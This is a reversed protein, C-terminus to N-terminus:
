RRNRVMHIYNTARGFMIFVTSGALVLFGPVKWVSCHFNFRRSREQHGAEERSLVEVSSVNKVQLKSDYLIGFLSNLFLFGAVIRLANRWHVATSLSQLVQSLAMNGLGQGASALGLAISQQKDFSNKVVVISSVLVCGAGIGLVGYSVFLLILSEAFSAVTLSLGCTLCGVMSVTRCGFRNVLSGAFPGAAFTFAVSLSGIWASSFFANTVNANNTLWNGFYFCYKHIYHLKTARSEANCVNSIGDTLTSLLM